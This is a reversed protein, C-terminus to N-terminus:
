KNDKEEDQMAIYMAMLARKAERRESITDRKKSSQAAKYGKKSKPNKKM